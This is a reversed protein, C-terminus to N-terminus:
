GLVALLDCAAGALEALTPGAILYTVCHNVRKFGSKRYLRRAENNNERVNLEVLPSGHELAQAAVHRLLATAICRRRHRPDVFLDQLYFTPVVWGTVYRMSYTAMGVISGEWEAVAATFRANSGFGHRLWDQDTARVCDATGEESALEYKMRMLAPIDAPIAPRVRCVPAMKM